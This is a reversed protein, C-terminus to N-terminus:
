TKSALANALAVYQELNVTEPRAQPDVGHESIEQESLLSKLANRLTKRRQSFAQRVVTALCEIRKAPFPARAYPTLRVFASDVKPAPSFAGRGVQFLPEVRCPYQIMVSLRGYDGCGPAASMRDVVEKQLMFHMDHIYDLQD